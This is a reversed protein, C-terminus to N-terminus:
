WAHLKSAIVMCASPMPGCAVICLDPHQGLVSFSSGPTFGTVHMLLCATSVEAPRKSVASFLSKGASVGASPANPATVSVEAPDAPGASEASSLGADAPSEASTLETGVASSQSQDSVEAIEAMQTSAPESHLAASVDAEPSSIDSAAPTVLTVAATHQSQQASSDAFADQDSESWKEVEHEAATRSVAGSNQRDDSPPVNTSSVAPSQAGRDTGATGLDATATIKSVPTAADAAHPRSVAASDSSAALAPKGSAVSNSAISSPTFSGETLETVRRSQGAAQETATIRATGATAGTDSNQPLDLSAPAVPQSTTHAPVQAALLGAAMAAQFAGPSMTPEYSGAADNDGFSASPSMFLAAPSRQGLNYVSGGADSTSADSSGSAISAADTDNIHSAPFNVQGLNIGTAFRKDHM